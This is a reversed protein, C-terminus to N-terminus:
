RIQPSTSIIICFAVDFVFLCNIIRDAKPIIKTTSACAQPPTPSIIFIKGYLEKKDWHKTEDRAIKEIRFFSVIQHPIQKMLYM